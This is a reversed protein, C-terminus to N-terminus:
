HPTDAAHTTFCLATSTILFSFEWVRGTLVRLLQGARFRGMVWATTPARGKGCEATNTHMALNNWVSKGYIHVVACVEIVDLGGRLVLEWISGSTGAPDLILRITPRPNSSVSLEGCIKALSEARATAYITDLSSSQYVSQNPHRPISSLVLSTLLYFTHTLRHAHTKSKPQTTEIRPPVLRM